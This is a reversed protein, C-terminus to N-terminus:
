CRALTVERAPKVGVRTLAVERLEEWLTCAKLRSVFLAGPKRAFGETLDTRARLVMEYVRMLYDRGQQHLRLLQWMLYRYFNLSGADTLHQALAHAAKDVAERRGQKPIFPVDLLIELSLREDSAVTLTVLNQARAPSLAWVLLSRFTVVNTENTSSQRTQAWATNGAEIDAALDRYQAKLDEYRLRARGGRHPLLKVSWLTGDCRVAWGNITTKHGRADVLGLALLEKLSRYFSGRSIGLHACISEAPCFYSVQGARRHYSRHHAVTCGLLNLLAYIRLALPNLDKVVRAVQRASFSEVTEQLAPDAVDRCLVQEPPEAPREPAASPILLLQKSAPQAPLGRRRELYGNLWREAAMAGHNARYTTYIMQEATSLEPTVTSSSAPEYSRRSYTLAHNPETQTSPSKVPDM